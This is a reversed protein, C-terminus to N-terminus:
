AFSLDILYTSQKAAIMIYHSLTMAGNRKSEAIKGTLAQENTRCADNCVQREGCNGIDSRSLGRIEIEFMLTREESTTSGRSASPGVSGNM